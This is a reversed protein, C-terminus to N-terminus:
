GADFFRLCSIKNIQLIPLLSFTDVTGKLKQKHVRERESDIVRLRAVETDVLAADTSRSEYVLGDVFSLSLGTPNKTKLDELIKVCKEFFGLEGLAKGKRFMAKYNNENKSLAQPL